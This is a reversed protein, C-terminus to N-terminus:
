WFRPQVVADQPLRCYDAPWRPIVRIRPGAEPPRIARLQDDTLESARWPTRDSRYYIYSADPFEDCITDISPGLERVAAHGVRTDLDGMEHTPYGRMRRWFDKRFSWAGHYAVDHRNRSADTRTLVFEGPRWVDWVLTPRAWPGKELANSVAALHWPLYLDDDDWVAFGEVDPSAMRMAVNRKEGISQFRESVSVLSWRDGHQNAYQGADDLIVMERDPHSQLEFCRIAEALLAPRLYTVCIAAIKM